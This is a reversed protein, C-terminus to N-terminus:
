PKIDSEMVQYGGVRMCRENGDRLVRGTWGAYGGGRFSVRRKVSQATGVLNPLDILNASIIVMNWVGAVIVICHNWMKGWEQETGSLRENWQLTRQSVVTWDLYLLPIIQMYFNSNRIILFVEFEHMIIRRAKLMLAATVPSNMNM